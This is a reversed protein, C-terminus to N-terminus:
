KKIELHDDFVNLSVSYLLNATTAPPEVPPAVIPSSLSALFAPNVWNVDVGDYNIGQLIWNTAYQWGAVQDSQVGSPYASAPLVPNKDVDDPYWAVWFKYDRTWVPPNGNRDLLNSWISRSTYILPRVGLEKEVGDLWTKVQYAYAAGRPYNDPKRKNEAPPSWELDLIPPWDSKEWGAIQLQTVYNGIQGSIDNPQFFHYAGRIYPLKKFAAFYNQFTPDVYSQGDTAKTILAKTGDPFIVKSWDSVSEWKSFDFAAPPKLRYTPKPLLSAIISNISM